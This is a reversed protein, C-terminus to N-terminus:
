QATRRKNHPTVIRQREVVSSRVRTLYLPRTTGDSSLATVKQRANPKGKSPRMSTHLCLCLCVLDRRDHRHRFLVRLDEGDLDAQLAPVFMAEQRQLVKVLNGILLKGRCRDSVEKVRCLVLQGPEFSKLLIRM